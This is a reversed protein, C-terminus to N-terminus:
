VIRVVPYDKAGQGSLWQNDHQWIALGLCTLLIVLFMLSVLWVNYRRLLINLGAIILLVPWFRWLRNWLAWPLVNFSQLLLVAGIFLLFIGAIPIESDRRPKEESMAIKKSCQIDSDIGASYPSYAM